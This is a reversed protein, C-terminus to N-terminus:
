CQLIIIIILMNKVTCHCYIWYLATVKKLRHWTFLVKPSMYYNDVVKRYKINCCLPNKREINWRLYSPLGSSYWNHFHESKELIHDADPRGWGRMIVDGIRGFSEPLDCGTQSFLVSSRSFFSCAMILFVIRVFYIRNKTASTFDSYKVVISWNNDIDYCFINTTTSYVLSFQLRSAKLIIKMTQLFKGRVLAHISASATGFGLPSYPTCSYKGEDAAIVSKIVLAGDKNLKMRTMQTVDILRDNKSWLILTVPPNAEVPCEIRGMMGRPLYM